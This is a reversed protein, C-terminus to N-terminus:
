YSDLDDPPSFVSNQGGGGDGPKQNLLDFISGSFRCKLIDKSYAMVNTQSDYKYVVTRLCLFQSFWSCLKM